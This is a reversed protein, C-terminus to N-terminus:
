FAVLREAAKTLTDNKKVFCFRIIGKATPDSYFVSIPIIYFSSGGRKDYQLSTNVSFTNFQYMKRLEITMEQLATCYGM